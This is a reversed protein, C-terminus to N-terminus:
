GATATTAQERTEGQKLNPEFSAFTGGNAKHERLQHALHRGLNTIQVYGNVTSYMEVLGAAEMDDLCDWDDHHALCLDPTEEHSKFGKLRTGCKPNWERLHALMPHTCPNARMRERTVEGIGPARQHDVTCIEVYALTSWHDKGWRDMPIITKAATPRM